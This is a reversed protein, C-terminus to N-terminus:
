KSVYPSTFYDMNKLPRPLNLGLFYLDTSIQEIALMEKSIDDLNKNTDSFKNIIEIESKEKIANIVEFGKKNSALIRIYKPEQNFISLIQDKTLRLLLHIIIRSIRTKTHRKSSASKILSYLDTHEKSKELIRNDLGQEMDFIERLESKDTTALLYSIISSYNDLFNYKGYRNKFSILNDFSAKPVLTELLDWNEQTILHRIGTASAISGNIEISNYLSGIRKYTIPIIKSNLKKLSKLYEIGLINNSGKIINKTDIDLINNQLLEKEIAISRSAAFSNGNELSKRLNNKFLPTEELLINSLCMLNDINGSESGFSVFDIINLSDLISIGGYAFLEASQVSYVVPLEIVLDVGCEVATKARSWKDIIAPEGRQVFSGSMVAVIHSSLTKEKTIRIHDVHGNHFPNYETIIGSIKMKEGGRNTHYSIIM